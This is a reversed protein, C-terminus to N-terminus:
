APELWNDYVDVCIKDRYPGTYNEWIDSQDFEVRYLPQKPLGSGGYARTEPNHFAGYVADVRGTKGKIFWPTRHHGPPDDARVRVRDGPSYRTEATAELVKIGV